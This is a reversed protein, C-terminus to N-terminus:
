PGSADWTASSTGYVCTAWSGNRLLLLLSYRHRPLALGCSTAAGRGLRACQLGGSRSSSLRQRGFPSLDPRLDVAAAFARAPHSLVSVNHPTQRHFKRRTACCDVRCRRMPQKVGPTHPHWPSMARRSNLLPWGSVGLIASYRLWRHWEPQRFARYRLFIRSGCHCCRMSAWGYNGTWSERSFRSLVSLRGRWRNSNAHRLTRYFRTNGARARRTCNCCARM